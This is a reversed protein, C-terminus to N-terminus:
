GGLEPSGLDLQGDPIVRVDGHARTVGDAFKSADGVLVVFNDPVLGRAAFARVSEADVALVRHAFEGVESLPVAYLV